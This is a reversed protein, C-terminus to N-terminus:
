RVADTPYGPRNPHTVGSISTSIGIGIEIWRM